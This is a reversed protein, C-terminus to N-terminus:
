PKLKIQRVPLKPWNGDVVPAPVLNTTRLKSADVAERTTNGPAFTETAPTSWTQYNRQTELSGDPRYTKLM